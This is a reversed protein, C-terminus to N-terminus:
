LAVPAFEALARDLPSPASFREEFWRVVAALAHESPEGALEDTLLDLGARNRQELLTLLLDSKDGFNAYFAGRTFGARDAIAEVTAAHFGVRAFIAAGADLL